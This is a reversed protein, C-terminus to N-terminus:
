SGEKPEREFGVPGLAEQNRDGHGAKGQGLEFDDLLVILEHHASSLLVIGVPLEQMAAYSGPLKLPAEKQGIANFNLVCHKLM